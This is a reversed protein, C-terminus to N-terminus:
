EKKRKKSKTLSSLSSEQEEKIQTVIKMYNALDDQSIDEWPLLEKIPTSLFFDAINSEKWKAVKEQGYKMDYKYPNESKDFYMVSALKYIIDPDTIFELREKMFQNVEKIRYIDIKKATLLADVAEVHDLLYERTVKQRLEEYYDMASFARDCPMQFVDDFEYYQIGEWVFAEKVKHETRLEPFVTKKFIRNFLKRM